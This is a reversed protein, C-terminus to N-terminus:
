MSRFNLNKRLKRYSLLSSGIVAVRSLNWVSVGHTM